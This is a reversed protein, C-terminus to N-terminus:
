GAATALSNNWRANVQMESRTFVSKIYDTVGTPIFGGVPITYDRDNNILEDVEKIYLDFEKVLSVCVNITSIYGVMLEEYESQGISDYLYGVQLRAIMTGLDSTALQDIDNRYGKLEEVFEFWESTTSAFGDSGKLTTLLQRYYDIELRYESHHILTAKSTDVVRGDSNKTNNYLIM